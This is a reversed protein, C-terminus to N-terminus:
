PRREDACVRGHIETVLRSTNVRERLDEIARDYIGFKEGHYKLEVAVAVDTKGSEEMFSEVREMHKDLKGFARKILLGVISLVGGLAAIAIATWDLNM